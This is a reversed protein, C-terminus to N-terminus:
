ASADPTKLLDPYQQALELFKARDAAKRAEADSAIKAKALAISEASVDESWGTVKITATDEFTNTDVWADILGKGAEVFREAAKQPTDGYIHVETTVKRQWREVAGEGSGTIATRMEVRQPLSYNRARVSVTCYSWSIPTSIM